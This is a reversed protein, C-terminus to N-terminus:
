RLPFRANLARELDPKAEDVRGVLLLLGARYTLTRPDASVKALKDSLFIAEALQGQRYHEISERLGPEAPAGGKRM